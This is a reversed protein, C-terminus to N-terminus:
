NRSKGPAPRGLSSIRFGSSSSPCERFRAAPAHIRNGALRRFLGPWRRRLFRRLRERGGGGSGARWATGRRCSTARVRSRAPSPRPARRRSAGRSGVPPRARRLQRVPGPCPARCGERPQWRGKGPSGGGKGPLWRSTVDSNNQGSDQGGRHSMATTIAVAIHCQPPEPAGPPHVMFVVPVTYVVPM